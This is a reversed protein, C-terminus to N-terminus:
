CLVGSKPDSCPGEGTDVFGSDPEDKELAKNLKKAVKRAEKETLGLPIFNDGERVGYETGNYLYASWTASAAGPYLAAAALLVLASLGIFKMRKM